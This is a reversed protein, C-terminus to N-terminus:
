LIITKISRPPINRTDKRKKGDHILAAFCCAFQTLPDSTIGYTHDHLASAHASGKKAVRSTHFSRDPAVIRSLLKTVSMSVSCAHQTCFCSSVFAILEWEPGTSSYPGSIACVEFNHFAHDHYMGAVLTIFSRLQRVVNDPLEVMDPDRQSEAAEADFAPLDIIEKVEDVVLGEGVKLHFKPWLATRDRTERRAVIQKILKTMYDVNWEILRRTKEDVNVDVVQSDIKTGHAFTPELQPCWM